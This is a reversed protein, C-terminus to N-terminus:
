FAKGHKMPRLRNKEMKARLAELFQETFGNGGVYSCLRIQIDALEELFAAYDTIKSIDAHPVTKCQRYFEYDDCAGGIEWLLHDTEADGTNSVCEAAEGIETVMLALQTGHQTLDFGKAKTTEACQEIITRLDTTM